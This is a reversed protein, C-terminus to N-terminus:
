WGVLERLVLGVEEGRLADLGLPAVPGAAHRVVEFRLFVEGGGVCEHSQTSM